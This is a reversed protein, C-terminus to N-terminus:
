RAAAMKNKSEFTTIGKRLSLSSLFAFINENYLIMFMETLIIRFM